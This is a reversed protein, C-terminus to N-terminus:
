HLPGSAPLSTEVKYNRYTPAVMNAVFEVTAIKNGTTMSAQQTTAESTTASVAGVKAATMTVNETGNYSTGDAFILQALGGSSLNILNGDKDVLTYTGGTNDYFVTNTAKGAPVLLAMKEQPITNDSNSGIVIYATTGDNIYLPEGYSLSDSSLNSLTKNTRKVQIKSAM